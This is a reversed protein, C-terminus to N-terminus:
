EQVREKKAIVVDREIAQEVWHELNGTDVVAFGTEQIAAILADRRITHTNFSMCLVGGPKLTDFWGPLAMSVTGLLGDEKGATGTQVGYPLDTVMLHVSSSKLYALANRTDGCIMRLSRTDGDKFHDASDSFIWKHQLGGNKGRVTLSSQQHKYKIRHYEFYRDMYAAMEDVNAKVIEIGIGHFGRRLALLPTTGKGAMPDCVILQADLHRCYDSAALAMTLMSDTFMENTKGKYKLLLPLDEGIYDPAQSPLPLLQKDDMSFIMYVSAIQWLMQMDHESMQRKTEFTLFQAGGITESVVDMGIGLAHLVLRAEEGAIQLLSARYRINQHPYLLLALKM